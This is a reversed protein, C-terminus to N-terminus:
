QIHVMCDTTGKEFGSKVVDVGFQYGAASPDPARWVTRFVGDVGTVGIVTTGGSSFSGGGVEVKVNGASIPTNRSSTARILLESVNGPSITQPAADCRVAIPGGVDEQDVQTGIEPKGSGDYHSSSPGGRQPNEYKPVASKPGFVEQWWWPATGGVLLAVVVAVIIQPLITSQRTGNEYTRETWPASARGM